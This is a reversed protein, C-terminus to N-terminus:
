DRRAGLHHTVTGVLALLVAALALMGCAAPLLAASDASDAMRRFLHNVPPLGPTFLATLVLTLAAVLGYGPRRFVSRSCLLGIATGTLACALQAVAGLLLDVPRVQYAGVWLPFFLGLVLLPLCGLLVTATSGALVKWSRGASVTVIARQSPGDLGLLAVTLWTSAIFLAGASSAYAPPLPGSGSVTLVGLLGTFLLLPPLYRQSHLAVALGYRILAIV